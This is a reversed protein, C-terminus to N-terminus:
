FRGAVKHYVVINSQLRSVIENLLVTRCADSKFGRILLLVFDIDTRIYAAGATTPACLMTDM